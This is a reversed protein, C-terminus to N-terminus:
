RRREAHPMLIALAIYGALIVLLIIHLPIIWKLSPVLAMIGTALVVVLLMALVRNRRTVMEHRARTSPYPIFDDSDDIQETYHSRRVYPEPDGSSYAYHGRGYNHTSVALAAMGRRFDTVTNVPSDLVREKLFEPLFLLGASLMLLLLLLIEM